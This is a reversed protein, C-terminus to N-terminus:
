VAQPIYRKIAPYVDDPVLPFLFTANPNELMAVQIAETFYDGLDPHRRLGGGFSIGDWKRKKLATVLAEWDEPQGPRVQVTEFATNQFSGLDEKLKRVSAEVQAQSRSEGMNYGKNSAEGFWSPKIGITLIHTMTTTAYAAAMFSM